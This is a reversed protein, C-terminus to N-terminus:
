RRPIRSAVQALRARATAGREAIGRGIVRLATSRRGPDAVVPPIVVGSLSSPRVRRFAGPAQVVRHANFIDKPDIM